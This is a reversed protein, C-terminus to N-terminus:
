NTTLGIGVFKIQLISGDQRIMTVTTTQVMPRIKTIKGYINKLLVLIFMLRLHNASIKKEIRIASLLRTGRNTPDNFRVPNNGMYVYRNWAQPNSPDPILSDPQLFHNIYPSGIAHYLVHPIVRRWNKGSRLQTQLLQLKRLRIQPLRLDM